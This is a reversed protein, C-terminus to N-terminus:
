RCLKNAQCTQGDPCADQQGPEDCSTVGPIDLERVAESFIRLALGPAEALPESASERAVAVTPFGAVGLDILGQVLAAPLELEGDDDTNCVLEGKRGGHHSIDVTVIIRSSASSSSPPVWTVLTEADPNFAIPSDSLLELPAIGRASLSVPLLEGGEASLTIVDGEAFPPYMLDSTSRPQYTNTPPLPSISLEAAGLGTLTVVGLDFTAPPAMCMGDGACIESSGCAPDCFPNFPEFLGCDGTEEVVNWQMNSPPMAEYVRGVISTTGPKADATDTAPVPANLEIGFVGIASRLRAAADSESADSAVDADHEVQADPAPEVSADDGCSAILWALVCGCAVFRTRMMSM